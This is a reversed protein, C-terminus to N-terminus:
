IFALGLEDYIKHRIVSMGVVRFTQKAEFLM